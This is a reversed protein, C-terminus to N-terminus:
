KGQGNVKIEFVSLVEEGKRLEWRFGGGAFHYGGVKLLELTEDKRAPDFIWEPLNGKKVQAAVADHQWTGLAAAMQRLKDRLKGGALDNVRNQKWQELEAPTLPALAEAVLCRKESAPLDPHPAFSPTEDSM